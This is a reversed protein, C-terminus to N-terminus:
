RTLHRVEILREKGVSHSVWTQHRSTCKLSNWSHRTTGSKTFHIIIIRDPKYRDQEVEHNFGIPIVTLEM